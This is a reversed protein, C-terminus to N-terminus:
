KKPMTNEATCDALLLPFIDIFVDPRMELYLKEFIDIVSQSNNSTRLFALQLEQNVFHITLLVAGGKIGEVSDLQRASVDPHEEVYKKYDDYTRGIRCQKDVKLAKPKGKRPRMRITRPMDINRATFLGNNVYTYLTRESKMVEDRHSISIHHLSQGNMLLPSIVSDLHKLEEESITFGSRSESRVTEYERQAYSAKYFAKELCCKTRDTCANCIYPPKSLRPCTHKEYSICTETCKGCSWCPRKKTTCRDCVCRLVCRHNFANICDNFAKGLSGTKENKRHVRVEKSITTCDKGLLLGIGKFSNAKCLELEITSRADLTLHKQTNM